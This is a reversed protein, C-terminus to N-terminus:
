FSELRWFVPKGGSYKKSNKLEMKENNVLQLYQFDRFFFPVQKIVPLCNEM